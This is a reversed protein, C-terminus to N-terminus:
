DETNKAPYTKMPANFPNEPNSLSRQPDQHKENQNGKQKQPKTDEKGSM